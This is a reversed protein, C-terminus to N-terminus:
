RSPILYRGVCRSPRGQADLGQTYSSGDQLLVYGGECLEGPMLLRRVPASSPVPAFVQVPAVDVVRGAGAGAHSFMYLYMPATMATLLVAVAYYMWDPVRARKRVMLM